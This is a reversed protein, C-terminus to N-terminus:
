ITAGSSLDAQGSLYINVTVTLTLPQYTHSHTLYAYAYGNIAHPNPLNTSSSLSLPTDPLFSLLLICVRGM